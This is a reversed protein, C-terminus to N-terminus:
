MRGSEWVLRAGTKGCMVTTIATLKDLFQPWHDFSLQEPTEASLGEAAVRLANSATRAGCLLMLLDELFRLREPISFVRQPTIEKARLQTVVRQWAADVQAESMLPAHQLIGSQLRLQGEALRLRRRLDACEDCGSLHAEFRAGTVPDARGDLYDNWEDESFEHMM